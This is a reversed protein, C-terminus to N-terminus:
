KKWKIRIGYLISITTIGLLPWQLCVKLGGINGPSSELFQKWYSFLQQLRDFGCPSRTSKNFEKLRQAINELEEPTKSPLNLRKEIGLAQREKEFAEFNEVKQKLANREPERIKLEFFSRVREEANPGYYESDLSSWYVNGFYHPDM